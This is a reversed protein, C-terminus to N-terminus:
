PIEFGLTAFPMLGVSYGAGAGAAGWVHRRAAQAELRARVHEDAGVDAFTLMANFPDVRTRVFYPIWRIAAFFGFGIVMAFVPAFIFKM